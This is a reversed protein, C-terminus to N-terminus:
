DAEHNGPAEAVSGSSPSFTPINTMPLRLNIGFPRGWTEIQQSPWARPPAEMKGVTLLPNLVTMGDPPSGKNKRALSLPSDPDERLAPASLFLAHPTM